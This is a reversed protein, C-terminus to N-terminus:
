PECEFASRAGIPEKTMDACDPQFLSVIAAVVAATVAAAAVAIALAILVRKM